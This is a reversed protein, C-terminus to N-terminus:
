TMRFNKHDLNSIVSKIVQISIVNDLFQIQIYIEHLIRISVFKDLQFFKLFIYKIDTQSLKSGYKLGIM